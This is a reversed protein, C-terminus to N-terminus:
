LPSTFSPLAGLFRDEFVEEEADLGFRLPFGIVLFCCSAILLPRLAL